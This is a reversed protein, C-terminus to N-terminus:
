WAAVPVSGNTPSVSASTHVRIRWSGGGDGRPSQGSIGCERSRVISRHRSFVERDLLISYTNTECKTVLIAHPETHGNAYRVRLSTCDEGSTAQAKFILSMDYLNQDFAVLTAYLEQEAFRKHWFM